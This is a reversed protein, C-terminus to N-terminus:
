MNAKVFEEYTVEPNKRSFEKFKNFIEMEKNTDEIIKGKLKRVVKLQSELLEKGEPNKEIRGKVLNLIEAQVLSQIKSYIEVYESNNFLRNKQEETMPLLEADIDDWILKQQQQTQQNQNNQFQLLRKRYNEMKKIQMDLDDISDLMPNGGVFVQNLAM